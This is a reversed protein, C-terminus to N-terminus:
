SFLGKQVIPVSTINCHSMFAEFAPFLDLKKPIQRDPGPYGM